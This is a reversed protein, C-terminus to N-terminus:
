QEVTLAKIIIKDVQVSDARRAERALKGDTICPIPALERLDALMECYVWGPCKVRVYWMLDTDPLVGVLQRADILEEDDAVQERFRRLGGTCAGAMKLEWAAVLM